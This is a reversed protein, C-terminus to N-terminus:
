FSSPYITLSWIQLFPVSLPLSVLVCYFHLTAYLFPPLFSLPLSPLPPFSLKPCDFAVLQHFLDISAGMLYEVNSLKTNGQSARLMETLTKGIDYMKM